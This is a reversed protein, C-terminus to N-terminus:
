NVQANDVFITNLYTDAYVFYDNQLFFEIIGDLKHGGRGDSFTLTEVCFCFPRSSSFDITRVIEENWGEVDISVLDIPEDFNEKVISNINRIPIKITREIKYKGGAELEHAEASSFTSLVHSSMLYFDALRDDDTGLGVNLCKDRPRSKRILQCLEPNPEVCVGKGGNRYFLFTNSGMLPHNTGVDLYSIRSKGFNNFLLQLIRDEGSQSYTRETKFFKFLARDVLSM